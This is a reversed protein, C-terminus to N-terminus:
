ASSWAARSVHRRAYYRQRQEEDIRREPKAAHRCRKRSPSRDHRRACQPHHARARAREAFQQAREHRLAL